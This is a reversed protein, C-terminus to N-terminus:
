AEKDDRNGLAAGLRAVTNRLEEIQALLRQQEARIAALEGAASVLADDPPPAPTAAAVDLAPEGCL